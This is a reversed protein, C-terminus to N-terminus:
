PSFICLGLQLVVFVFLNPACYDDFIDKRQTNHGGGAGVCLANASRTASQRGDIRHV